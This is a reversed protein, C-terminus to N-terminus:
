PNPECLVSYHKTLESSSKLDIKLMAQLVCVVGAKVIKDGVLGSQNMMM